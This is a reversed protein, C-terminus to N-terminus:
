MSTKPRGAPLRSFARPLFPMCSAKGYGDSKKYGPLTTNVVMGAWEQCDPKAEGKAVLQAAGDSPTTDKM